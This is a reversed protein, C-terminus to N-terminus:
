NLKVSVLKSVGPEEMTVGYLTDAVAMTTKNHTIVIFQSAASMERVIENFRGINADDLPADVEDLLCFPSPKILFIAFILAVATLAKEGGSLLTVNQLKKGPPQVIIEIGTELLDNEDTLRLEASGGCFLRPFIERFKADVLQFTELFRKRTTRNIRQIAQQLAKLSEELDDRQTCLFNNRDELQRFEDIAMLNVEGMEGILRELEDGRERKATEDCPAEGYLPIVQAMEVRYKELLSGELHEMKMSLEALKLSEAAHQKRAEECAARLGKQSGEEEQVAGGEAEYVERLGAFAAEAEVQRLILAKLAEESQAIAATIRANEGGGKALDAQHGAIRARLDQVLEEARKEARVGSESKEKLAATMVKAATVRERTEGLERRKAALAEALEGVETEISSKREEAASRGAASDAMEKELLEKEERFQDGELRKLALREEVRQLGERSRFLDKELNVADLELRHQKKGLDLLEEEIAAAREQLAVREEGLSRVLGNLDAVTRSLDRIERKKHIVGQQALELSGGHVIGSSHVLEGQPTVFTHQPFEGALRFAAHLDDALYAGSLLPEIFRRQQPAITVKSILPSAGAPPPAPSVAVERAIFSCRGGANEKLFSIAAMVDDSANSLVYQLREGLVAEVATEYAEDTEIADAVIGQFRERFGDALFLSRVGRGYGDFRAELEQLSNLRSSKGSLEDRRAQLEGEKAALAGKVEKERDRLSSLAAATEEREASLLGLRGEQDEASAATEALQKELLEKERRDRELREALADIRKAAALHQNNFQAIEAHLAFLAHRREDVRRALQAEDREVEALRAEGSSLKEEEEALEVKFLGRKEELGRKEAVAEALRQELAALEEGFRAVQRDLNLLEKKAFELRSEEAKSEGKLRFIEEQANGLEKEREVLALRKAELRLEGEQLRGSLGTEEGGAREIAAAVEKKEKEMAIFQRAAFLLEIEKLEERFERFKEAKKAQRQLSNLQRKIEAIIDGIRLLNQRTVEIKKLAVQKRTKFKTVGAAEEILFRREEPKSLLIMGIKGQEIISYAKAGVGTDMFLEAIDLLRCTTKNILYESEGDRYLRRTVQIEPYNLYRAPVRGDDTAFTLSVEAMGLPKRSESGGFIVDEMQRGRLNKASQEGMVWRIADVINSKGCGNPGVIATIGPPFELSAKDVFSKFGIIDLRRIKM